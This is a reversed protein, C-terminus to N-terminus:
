STRRVRAAASQLRLTEISVGDRLNEVLTRADAALHPAAREMADLLVCNEEDLIYVVELDGHQLVWQGSDPHTSQINMVVSPAEIGYAGTQRLNPDFLARPDESTLVIHGNDKGNPLHNEVRALVKPTIRERAKPGMVLIDGSKDDRIIASVARPELVYGMLRGAERLLAAASACDADTDYADGIAIVAAQLREIPDRTLKKTALHRVTASRLTISQRQARIRKANGM